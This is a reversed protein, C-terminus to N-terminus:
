TLQNNILNETTEELKKVADNLYILNSQIEKYEKSHYENEIAIFKEYERHILEKLEHINKNLKGSNKMENIVIMEAANKLLNKERKKATSQMDRWIKPFNDRIKNIIKKPLFLLSAYSYSKAIFQRETEKIVEIDGFYQGDHLNNFKIKEKHMKYSVTGENIFYIGNSSEGADWIKYDTSHIELELFLAIDAIFSEDRSTFFVFKNVAKNYINMAVEYKLKMPIGSFVTERAKASILFNENTLRVYRKIQHLCQKNVKTSEGLIDVVSLLKNILINKTEASAAASVLTGVNFSILYVGTIMWFMAIVKEVATFPVIDGYGITALTTLAYYISTLYREEPSKDVYNYRFVWTTSTFDSAKASYHWLCAVLHLTLLGGFAVKVFRLIRQNISMFFRLNELRNLGKFMKIVRSLRLLKPLSRVNALGGQNDSSAEILSFPISTIADLICWHQLYHKTVLYRNKVLQSEEDYYGINFNFILDILFCVDIMMDIIFLPSLIGVDLFAISYPSIIASYLLVIAIFISWITVARSNPDLIFRSYNTKVKVLDQLQKSKQKLYDEIEGENVDNFNHISSEYQNHFQLIKRMRIRFIIMRKLKQWLWRYSKNIIPKKHIENSDTIETINSYKVKYFPSEELIPISSIDSDEM